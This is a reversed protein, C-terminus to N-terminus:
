AQPNSSTAQYKDEYPTLELEMTLAQPIVPEENIYQVKLLKLHEPCKFVPYNFGLATRIFIKMHTTQSFLLINPHDQYFDQAYTQANFETIQSSLLRPCEPSINVDQQFHQTITSKDIPCIFLVKYTFNLVPNEPLVTKIDILYSQDTNNSFYLEAFCEHLQSNFAILPLDEKNEMYFQRIAGITFLREFDFDLGQFTFKPEQKPFANFFYLSYQLNCPCYCPTTDPTDPCAFSKHTCPMLPQVYHKQLYFCLGTLHLDRELANPALQQIVTFQQFLSKATRINESMTALQQLEDLLAPNGQQTLLDKCCPSIFFNTGLRAKTFDFAEPFTKFGKTYADPHNLTNQQVTLWNAYIGPKIGRIVAFFGSSKIALPTAAQTSFYHCLSHVIKPKTQPFMNWVNNVLCKQKEDLNCTTKFDRDPGFTAPLFNHGFQLMKTQVRSLFRPSPTSPIPSSSSSSPTGEPPTLPPSNFIEDLNM